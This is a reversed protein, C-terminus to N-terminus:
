INTPARRPHTPRLSIPRLPVRPGTARNSRTSGGATWEVGMEILRHEVRAKMEAVLPAPAPEAHFYTVYLSNIVGKRSGLLEEIDLEGEDNRLLEALTDGHAVPWESVLWFRVGTGGPAFERQADRLRELLSTRKAGIFGPDTLAEATFAGVQREHYKLQFYDAAVDGSVSPIPPDYVVAVDDFAKPEDLEFGVECAPSGEYLVECAKFWSFRAQLDRGRGPAATARAM